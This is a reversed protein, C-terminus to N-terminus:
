HYVRTLIDRLMSVMLDENNAIRSEGDTFRTNSCNIHNQLADNLTTQNTKIDAIDSSIKEMGIAKRVKEGYWKRAKKSCSSIAGVIIAAASLFGGVTKVTEMFTLLQENM